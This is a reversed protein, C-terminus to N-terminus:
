KRGLGRFKTPKNTACIVKVTLEGRDRNRGLSPRSCLASIERQLQTRVLVIYGIHIAFTILGFFMVLGLAMFVISVARRSRKKRSPM